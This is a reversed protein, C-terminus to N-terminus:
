LIFMFHFQGEIHYTFVHKQGNLARVIVKYLLFFCCFKHRAVEFEVGTAMRRKQLEMHFELYEAIM